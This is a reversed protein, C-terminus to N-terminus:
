TQWTGPTMDPPKHGPSHLNSVKYIDMVLRNSMQRCNNFWRLINNNYNRSKSFITYLVRPTGAKTHLSSQVHCISSRGGTFGYQPMERATHRNWIRGFRM